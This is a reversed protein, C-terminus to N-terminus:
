RRRGRSPLLQGPVGLPQVTLVGGGGRDPPVVPCVAPLLVILRQGDPLPEVHDRLPLLVLRHGLAPHGEIQVGARVKPVPEWAEVWSHRSPPPPACGGRPGPAPGPSRCRCGRWRRGTGPPPIRRRPPCRGWPGHVHGILVGGEVADSLVPVGDPRPVDEGVPLQLRLQAPSFYGRTSALMTASTIM